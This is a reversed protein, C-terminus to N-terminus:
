ALSPASAAAVTESTCRTQCWCQLLDCGGSINDSSEALCVRKCAKDHILGFCVGKFNSSQHDNCPFINYGGVSASEAGLIRGAVAAVAVLLLVVASLNKGASHVM